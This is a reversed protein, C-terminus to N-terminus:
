YIEIRERINEALQRTSQAERDGHKLLGRLYEDIEWLQNYYDRSKVAIDFEEQEDPLDYKLTAKM